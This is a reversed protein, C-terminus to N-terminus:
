SDRYVYRVNIGDSEGWQGAIEAVTLQHTPPPILLHGYSDYQLAPAAVAPVAAAAPNAPVAKDIDMREVFAQFKPLYSEDNLVALTSVSKGFGSIVTLFAFAKNGQFDISSGGAIVTWGNDPESETKPNAEGKWPDVVRLKWENAFDQRPNGTTPGVAYLTIFCFSGKAQDIQSFVVAHDKATKTWGALPSYRIAGLNETQGFATQSTLLFLICGTFVTSAKMRFVKM